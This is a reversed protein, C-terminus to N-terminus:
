PDAPPGSRYGRFLPIVGSVGVLALLLLAGGALINWTLPDAFIAVGLVVAFLLRSATILAGPAARVYRYGGTVALQGVLGGVASLGLPLLVRSPLPRFVPIMAAGNVLCGVGMLYFMLLVTTDHKRAERLISLSFAATVASLLALVDGRNIHGFDPLVVLYMGALAVALFGLHAARSRERNLLPALAFVFVPSTMNLMNAKSVTSYQVGLFFLIATLANLVGRLWAYLPRRPRLSRRRVAVYVAMVLFGLLFRFFTVEVASIRSNLNVLKAFVSALAFSLASAAILLVGRSM